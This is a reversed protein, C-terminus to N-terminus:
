WISGQHLFLHCGDDSMCCGVKLFLKQKTWKRACAVFEKVCMPIKQTEFERVYYPGIPNNKEHDYEMFRHRKADSCWVLCEEDDDRLIECLDDFALQQKLWGSKKVLSPVNDWIRGLAAYMQQPSDLAVFAIWQTLFRSDFRAKPDEIKEGHRLDRCTCKIWDTTANM